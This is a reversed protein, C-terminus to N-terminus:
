LKGRLERFLAKQRAKPKTKDPTRRVAEPELRGRSEYPKKALATRRRRSQRGDRCFRRREPKRRQLAANLAQVDRL